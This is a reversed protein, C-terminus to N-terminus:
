EVSFHFAWAHECPPRSRAAQPVRITFGGAVPEWALPGKVGYMTVESGPRPVFARITVTEPPRTEDAGALYIANVTGDPMRTFRVKDEQYPPVARTRYIADGNVKMWDAMGALRDLSAPPLEGEPSPGINLLLNGGKAVIEVLYRILQRTPKYTDTAVYSWSTAMTMCTEWVHDLPVDPIEQEPTHYNQYRGEVARDVVILGPQLSRAMAAIRPM